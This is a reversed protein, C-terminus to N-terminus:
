PLPNTLDGVRHPNGPPWDFELWHIGIVPADNVVGQFLIGIDHTETWIVVGSDLADGELSSAPSFNDTTLQYNDALFIQANPIV